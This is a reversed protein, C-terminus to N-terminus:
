KDWQYHQGKKDLWNEVGFEKIMDLNHEMGPHFIRHFKNKECLKYANCEWCGAIKREIVCKRMECNKNCGCESVPGEFCNSKCELKQMETLLKRFVDYNELEKVKTSKFKAYHEFGLTDLLTALKNITAFLEKNSPICDKCYLGCFATYKENDTM